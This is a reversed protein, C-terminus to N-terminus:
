RRRAPGARTHVRDYPRGRVVVSRQRRRRVARRGRVREVHRADSAARARREVAAAVSAVARAAQRDLLRRRRDRLSRRPAEGGRREARSGARRVRDARREPEVRVTARRAACADARAAHREGPARRRGPGRRAQGHAASVRPAHWRAVLAALECVSRTSSAPAAVTRACSSSRTRWGTTRATARAECTRSARRM